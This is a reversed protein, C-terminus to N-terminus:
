AVMGFVWWWQDFTEVLSSWLSSHLCVVQLARQDFNIDEMCSAATTATFIGYFPHSFNAEPARLPHSRLCRSVYAMGRAFEPSESCQTRTVGARSGKWVAHALCIAHWRPEEAERHAHAAASVLFPIADEVPTTFQLTALSVFCLSFMLMTCHSCYVQGLPHSYGLRCM